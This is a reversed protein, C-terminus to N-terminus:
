SEECKSTFLRDIGYEGNGYRSKIDSIGDWDRCSEQAGIIELRTWKVQTDEYATRESRGPGKLWIMYLKGTAKIETINM